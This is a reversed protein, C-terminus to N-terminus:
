EEVTLLNNYTGYPNICNDPSSRDEYWNGDVIYKYEYIGPELLLTKEWVDQKGKKMTHKKINWKNFDGALYVEKAQPAHFVLQIKKAQKKISSKKEM